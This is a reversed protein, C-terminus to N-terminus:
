GMRVVIKGIMENALMRDQARPLDAFPLVKDILPRIRGASMLPLIDRIFGETQGEREVAQRNKNSVGFVHLRNRHVAELDIHASMSGGVYGVTALRGRYALAALCPEFMTGGVNNVVIDVGHGGTVRKVEDQPVDQRTVIGHDLGHAKLLALKDASGSTGIVKAGLAKAIQLCAVGVGSSIGTVLVWEGAVIHANVVLMDYATLYVIPCAAEEWSYGDPVPIAERASAVAIEAFGHRLRGMVRQGVKWGSVGSGLAVIEGAGDLGFPKGPGDGTAHILGHGAILEGRNLSAAKVRVLLEGPKPEPAPVERLDLFAKGSKTGLFFQKM